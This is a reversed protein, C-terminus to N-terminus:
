FTIGHDNNPTSWRVALWGPTVYMGDFGKDTKIILRHRDQNIGERKELVLTIAGTVRLTDGNPYIYERWAENSIDFQPQKSVEEMKESIM